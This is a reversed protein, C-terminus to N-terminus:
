RMMERRPDNNTNKDPDIWENNLKIQRWNAYSLQVTLQVLGEAENSLDVSNLSTPFAKELVVAYAVDFSTIAGATPGVAHKRLQRIRVPAAYNDPYKIEYTDQDIIYNQWEEFYKKIGYDQMLYFVMTVDDAAFGTPMKRGKIGILREQTLIQRGPLNCSACLVDIEDSTIGPLERITPMTVQFLNPRAFGNRANVFSKIREIQSM